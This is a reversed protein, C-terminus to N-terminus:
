KYWTCNLEIKFLPNSPDNTIYTIFDQYRGPVIYNKDQIVVYINKSGGPPITIETITPEYRIVGPPYSTGEELSRDLWNYGFSYRTLELTSKGSNKIRITKLVEGEKVQSINKKGLNIINEDMAVLKPGNVFDKKRISLTPDGFLFSQQGGTSIKYIEGFDIGAAILKYEILSGLDSWGIYFTVVSNARVLLSKGSFLYWGALYESDTIDGNSCSELAIFLAGPPHELVDKKNIYYSGGIWQSKSTGHVHFSMIEYNKTIKELIRKKREGPDVAYATEVKSSQKYLNTYDAIQGVKTYLKQSIDSQDESEVFLMGDYSLQGVRYKHNRDFYDRLLEIKQTSSDGPPMLRSTWITRSYVHKQDQSQIITDATEEIWDKTDLKQYYYDSPSKPYVKGQYKTTHYMIPIDGILIAGKLGEKQFLEVLKNRIESAKNWNKHLVFVDFNSDREIDSKFRLIENSLANYTNEDIVLAVSNKQQICAGNQCITNVPCAIVSSWELCNDVDYNGCTQYGNGSCRKLGTQSCEDQCTPVIEEEPIVVEEPPIVEEELLEEESSPTVEEPKVVKEEDPKEVVEPIEPLQKSLYFYLGGTILGVIVLVIIIGVLTQGHNHFITKM